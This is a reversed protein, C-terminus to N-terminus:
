QNAQNTPTAGGIMIGTPLNVNHNVNIDIEFGNIAFCVMIGAVVGISFILIEKLMESNKRNKARSSKVFFYIIVMTM